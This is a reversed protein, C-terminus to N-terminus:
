KQKRTAIAAGLGLLLLSCPEPISAVRFGFNRDENYPYLPNYYFRTSSILQHDDGYYYSGGRIGRFSDRV